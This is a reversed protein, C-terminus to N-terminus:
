EFDELEDKRVATATVPRAQSPVALATGDSPAVAGNAHKHRAHHTFGCCIRHHQAKPGEHAEVHLAAVHHPCLRKSLWQPWVFRACLWLVLVVLQFFVLVEFVGGLAELTVAGDGGGVAASPDFPACTSQAYYKDQLSQLTGSQVMSLLAVNIADKKSTPWSKSM